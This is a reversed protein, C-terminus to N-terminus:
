SYLPEGNQDTGNYNLNQAVRGTKLDFLQGSTTLMLQGNPSFHVQGKLAETSRVEQAQSWFASCLALVVFCLTRM